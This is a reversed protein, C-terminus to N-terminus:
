GRHGRALDWTLARLREAQARAAQAPEGGGALGAASIGRSVTVLASAPGAGFAPGLRDLHGGQPGVGPVLFVARPMLERLRQLHEPATAAVVAGVSSLGCTAVDAAGLRSVLEALREWVRGGGTVELEQIDAAGPNSTRVLVFLGRGHQRAMDVFPVIADTGMLPNVTAADADLGAISGFPSPTAGILAQAYALASISIDGRKGDAIVLLGAGRAHDVLAQLAAWGPHGLREFCALQFKAAVSAPGAADILARGHKLFAAALREVPSGTAAGTIAQPWLADPHPDV